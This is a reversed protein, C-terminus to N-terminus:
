ILDSRSLVGVLRRGDLVPVTRLGRQTVLRRTEEVTAGLQVAVPTPTMLAGVTGRAPEAPRPTLLDAESVIGVLVDSEDVVPLATHRHALMRESADAASTGVRVTVVDTTMVERVLTAGTPSPRRRDRALAFLADEDPEVRRRGRLLGRLGPRRAPRARRRLLDGRTVVGVLKGGQVIPMVRLQGQDRLRNAVAGPNATASMSVVDDTMIESVPVSEDVPLGAEVCAERYRLVDLLSVMGVLRSSSSVVPLASFGFRTLQAVASSIPADLRLSVVRTTMVDRM